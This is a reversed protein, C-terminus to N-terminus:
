ARDCSSTSLRRSRSTEFPTLPVPESHVARHLHVCVVGNDDEQLVGDLVEDLGEEENLLAEIHRWKPLWRTDPPLKSQHIIARPFAGEMFGIAYGREALWREAEEHSPFQLSIVRTLARAIELRTLRPHGM